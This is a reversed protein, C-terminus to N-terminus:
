SNLERYLHGLRNRLHKVAYGKRSIITKLNEGNRDAIEQLTLDEIENLVFVERQNEPLEGLADMLEKWFLEKFFLFEPDDREDSLLLERFGSEGEDSDRFLDDVPETGKKRYLDIVKNRAVRYLWAGLNDPESFETLNSLQIWVEQLIDEADAQSRVRGRVFGSLKRGFQQIASSVSRSRKENMTLPLSQEM